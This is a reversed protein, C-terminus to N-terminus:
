CFRMNRAILLRWAYSDTRAHLISLDPKEGVINISLDRFM